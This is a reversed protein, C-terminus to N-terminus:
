SNRLATIVLTVFSVTRIVQEEQVRVTHELLAPILSLRGQLVFHAKLVHDGQSVMMPHEQTHEVMVYTVLIVNHELFPCVKHM